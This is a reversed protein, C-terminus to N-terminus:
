LIELLNLLQMRNLFERIDAEATEYSVDYEDTLLDTLERVNKPEELAKWLLRGSESMIAIQGQDAAEKNVPIALFEGAVEKLIYGSRVRYREPTDNMMTNMNGECIEPNIHNVALRPIILDAWRRM